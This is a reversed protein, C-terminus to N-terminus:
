GIPPEIGFFGEETQATYSPKPKIEGSVPSDVFRGEPDDRDASTRLSPNYVSLILTRIKEIGGETMSTGDLVDEQILTDVVNMMRDADLTELLQELDVGRLLQRGDYFPWWTL